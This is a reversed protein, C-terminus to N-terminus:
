RPNVAEWADAPLPPDLLDDEAHVTGRLTAQPSVGRQEFPLVRAVPRGHKLVVLGQGSSQVEDLLALCHTKFAAAGISKM